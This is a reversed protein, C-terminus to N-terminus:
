HTIRQFTQLYDSLELQLSDDFIMSFFVKM